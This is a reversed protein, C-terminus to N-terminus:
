RNQILCLSIQNKRRLLCTIRHVSNKEQEMFFDDKRQPMFLPFNIVFAFALENPDDKNVRLDPKDTGYKSMVEDYDLRPWPDFTMRKEPFLTKVLSTM